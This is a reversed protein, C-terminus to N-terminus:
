IDLRLFVMNHLRDQADIIYNKMVGESKFGLKEVCRIANTQEEVVSVCIKDLKMRVANIFLERAIIIKMINMTGEAGISYSRVGRIGMEIPYEKTYGAAGLWDAVENMVKFAYVPAKLKCMAASLSIDHHSFKNEKYMKELMWAAKYNLLKASEINTYHESLPFQIGEFSGLPKGFSKRTKIYDMGLDLAAESALQALYWSRNHCYQDEYESM